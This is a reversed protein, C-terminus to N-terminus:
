KKEGKNILFLFRNRRFIPFVCTNKESSRASWFVKARYQVFQTRRSRSREREGRRSSRKMHSCELGEGLRHSYHTRAVQDASGFGGLDYAASFVRFLTYLTSYTDLAAVRSGFRAPRRYKVHSFFSRKTLFRSLSLSIDCMRYGIGAPTISLSGIREIKIARSITRKTVDGAAAHNEKWTRTM